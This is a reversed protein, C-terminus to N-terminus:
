RARAERVRRIVAAEDYPLDTDRVRLVRFGTAVLRQTQRDDHRRDLLARHYTGSDIFVVLRHVRDVFDCPLHM